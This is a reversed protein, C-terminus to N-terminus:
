CMQLDQYRGLLPIETDLSLYNHMKSIIALNGEMGFELLLSHFHRNGWLKGLFGKPDIIIDKEITKTQMEIKM